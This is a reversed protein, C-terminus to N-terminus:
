TDGVPWHGCKVPGHDYLFVLLSKYTGATVLPHHKTGLHTSYNPVGLRWQAGRQSEQYPLRLVLSEQTLSSPDLPLM